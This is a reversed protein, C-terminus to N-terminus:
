MISGYLVGSQIEREVYEALKQGNIFLERWLITGEDDQREVTNNRLDVILMDNTDDSFQYAIVKM